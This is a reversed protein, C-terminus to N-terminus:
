TQENRVAKTFVALKRGAGDITDYVGRDPLAMVEFVDLSGDEKEEAIEDGKRPMTAEGNLILEATTVFFTHGQWREILGSDTRVEFGQAGLAARIACTAGRRRYTYAKYFLGDAAADVFAFLRDFETDVSGPM